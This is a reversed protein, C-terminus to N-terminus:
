LISEQLSGLPLPGPHYGSDYIEGIPDFFYMEYLTGIGSNSDSSNM